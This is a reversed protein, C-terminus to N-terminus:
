EEVNPGQKELKRFDGWFDLTGMVTFILMLPLLWYVGFILFAGIMIIPILNEKQWRKFYFYVLSFGQLGYAVSMILVLNWGSFKIGYSPQFHDLLVLALGSILILIMKEPLYINTFDRKKIVAGQYRLWFFQVSWTVFLSTVLSFIVLLFPAMLKSMVMSKKIDRKFIRLEEDSKIGLQDLSVVGTEIFKDFDKLIDDFGLNQFSYVLHVSIVGLAGLAFILLFNIVLLRQFSWRFVWGLYVSLILGLIMGPISLFGFSGVIIIGIPVATVIIVTRKDFSFRTFLYNLPLVFLLSILSFFLGLLIVSSSIQIGRFLGEIVM